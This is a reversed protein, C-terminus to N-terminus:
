APVPRRFIIVSIIFYLVVPLIRSLCLFNKLAVSKDMRRPAWLKPTKPLNFGAIISIGVAIIQPLVSLLFYILTSGVLINFRSDSSFAFLLGYIIRAAVFPSCAAVSYLLCMEARLIPTHRIIIILLMLETVIFEAAFLVNAAKTLHNTVFQSPSNPPTPVSASVSAVIFGALGTAFRLSFFVRRVPRYLYNNLRALMGASIGILPAIGISETVLVGAYVSRTPYFITAIQFSAGIICLFSFVVIIFWGGSRRWGHKRCLFVGFALYIVFFILQVIATADRFTIHRM